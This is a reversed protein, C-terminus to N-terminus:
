SPAIGDGVISEVSTDDVNSCFRNANVRLLASRLAELASTSSGGVGGTRLGSFFDGDALDRVDRLLEIVPRLAVLL